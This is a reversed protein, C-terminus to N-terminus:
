YKRYVEELKKKNANLVLILLALIFFVPVAKRAYFLGGNVRKMPMSFDSQVTIIDKYIETEKELEQKRTYLGYVDNYILQTKQEQLFIMQGGNQPQRMKPEEFYLIKQLSDLQLIDYDLRSLIELNQRLRLRNRQQFLSDSNFYKLIGIELNHLEHPEAIRVNIVTRDTMIVNMTDKRPDFSRDYDIYDPIGDRGKDVYSLAIIGLINKAEEPKLYLSIALENTNKELVYDQLKKIKEYVETTTVSNPKLNLESLYSPASTFKLLYSAGVGLIISITLPIWRRIMFVISILTWRGLTTFMKGLSNGMRKFLDLLDIEDDRVNKNTTNESM